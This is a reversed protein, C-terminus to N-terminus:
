INRFIFYFIVLGFLVYAIYTQIKGTQIKRFILGFFMVVSGTLNVAGDVIGNDFQGSGSSAKKTIYASGNVLGDIIKDDFWKLISTFILLIRVIVGDYFHDFYWKNLSLNYLPKLKQALRDTDVKKWQYFTFALLIGAGAVLLSIAMAPYHAHHIAEGFEKLDTLVHLRQIEPVVSLPMTIYKYFWGSAADIPNFSYFGFISLVALIVLPITMAKPSEHCHEYKEKNKPAGHFAIIVLRFMYFATMSASLFAVVPIIYHIGGMMGAYAMTGALISDKSLFGSTLPVGCLALTAILFTWYTIPMKNRLGGMNRIDQEHHMAYIVSGSGLFLCAKFSAHTTLHFFGSTYSGVGLGIMMYGLQSVTSYALVKKIDNQTLAITSALFATILGIYAIFMMANADMMPFTRAVLYVGAAVMTAAHILASVPTPGEMADPLWVHLPFQASKGIAGCFILIGAASLWGGSLKGAEIAAFVENYNLTRTFYYIIMIGSFFGIDGIRNVIFAKKCAYQPGPKEYWFGILAYSSFGVLEWFIYIMLFNTSLVIGLMSFSFVGLYAFYRSYKSDGEMYKCSFLHTLSSILCVVVLMVVSLPDILIGLDFKIPGWFPSEKLDFWTVNAILKSSAPTAYLIYASLALCVFLLGTGLWDGQRPLKKGFFTLFVFSFLPLFLILLSITVLHDM